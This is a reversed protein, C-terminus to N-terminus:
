YVAVNFQYVVVDFLLVALVFDGLETLTEVEAQGDEEAALALVTGLDERL